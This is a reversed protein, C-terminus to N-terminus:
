QTITKRIKNFERLFEAREHQMAEEAAARGDAPTAPQTKTKRFPIARLEADLLARAPATLREYISASDHLITMDDDTFGLADLDADGVAGDTHAKALANPNAGIICASLEIQEQALFICQAKNAVDASLGLETAATNFKQGDFKSVSEVPFFGVSVAKLYGAETMKWGLQALKNEEIDRAWQVREILQNGVVKFETVMGLQRDICSYDHSDVFPANKAFHTFRWGRAAIVERYCDLTEDSAVYDVVGAKADIIRVEPHISRILKM